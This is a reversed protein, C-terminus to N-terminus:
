TTVLLGTNVECNMPAGGVFAVQDLRGISSWRHRHHVICFQQLGLLFAWFICFNLSEDLLVLSLDSVPHVVIWVDVLCARSFVLITLVLAVPSSSLVVQELSGHGSEIALVPLFYSLLQWAASIDLAEMSPLFNQIRVEHFAGPGFFLVHKYKYKHLPLPSLLPSIDGVVQWAADSLLTSLAPVVMQIGFYLFIIPTGLFFENQNDVVLHILVLPCFDSKFKLAACVIRNFIM